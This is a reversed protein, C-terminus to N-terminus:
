GIPSLNVEDQHFMVAPLESILELSLGKDEEFNYIDFIDNVYTDTQPGSNTDTVFLAFNSLFCGIIFSDLLELAVIAGSVLGIIAGRFFGIETTQGNIAGTIGGIIAGGFAFICSAVVFGATQLLSLVFLCGFDGM